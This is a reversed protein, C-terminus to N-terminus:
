AAEPGLQGPSAPPMKMNIYTFLEVASKGGWNNSFTMGNLASAFESGGLTQGHCSACSKAYVAKGQEAQAATYTAISRSNFEQAPASMAAAMAALIVAVRVVRRGLVKRVSMHEEAAAACQVM